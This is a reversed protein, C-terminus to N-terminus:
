GANLAPRLFADDYKQRARATRLERLKRQRETQDPLDIAMYGTDYENAGDPYDGRRLRTTLITAYAVIHEFKKPEYAAEASYQERLANEEDSLHIRAADDLEWFLRLALARDCHAHQAVALPVAFGDDWNHESMLNWLAVEDADPLVTGPTDM